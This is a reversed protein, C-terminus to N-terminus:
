DGQSIEVDAPQIIVNNFNIQPKIVRTIIREGDKLTDDPIFQAKGLEMGDDFNRGVIDIIEYGMDNLKEELSEIRKNLVKTSQSEEMTKLRKRMRHIEEGLKIPLSHDIEQSQQPQFNAIELKQELIQILKTDLKIAESALKEQASKIVSLSARQEVMKSKLFFFVVIVLILVVLIAIIWYLTRDSITKDIASLNTYTANKVSKITDETASIRDLVSTINEGLEDIRSNYNIADQQIIKSLRSIESEFENELDKIENKISSTNKKIESQLDSLNQNAQAIKEDISAQSAKTELLSDLMLLSINLKELDLKIEEIRYRPADARTISSDPDATGTDAWVVCGLALLILIIRLKM